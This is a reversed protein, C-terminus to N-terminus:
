KKKTMMIAACVCPANEDSEYLRIRVLYNGTTKCKFDVTATPDTATDKAMVKNNSDLIEIDVDKADNDGAAIFRYTEGAALPVTFLPVWNKKSQKLWGGGISFSNNALAYGDKNGADILKSLRAATQTVYVGQQASAQSASVVLALASAACVGLTFRLNKM